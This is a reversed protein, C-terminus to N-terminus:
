NYLVDKIIKVKRINGQKDKITLLANEKGYLISQGNILDCLTLNSVDRDDIALIQDGQNLLSEACNFVVGVLLKDNVFVPRFPWQREGLQYNSQNADFYFKGHIFDLTVIGYDLLKSGIAPSAAKNSEIILDNFTANGIVFPSVKFLYKIGDEQLGITSLRDAGHGKALTDFVAYRNIMGVLRDEVRFFTNDGTDFELPLTVDRKGKILLTIFPSSQNGINLTLQGGDKSKLTLKDKQDTFVIIHKDPVISIISNRLLNSGIVGDIQYCKFFDPLGTTAPIHNFKLDGIELCNIEVVLTSDQHLFADGIQIKKLVKANLERALEKSITVPAGTDFLFHHRKGGIECYIFLKGNINEYPIEEYYNKSDPGGQNFNFTQAKCSLSVLFLMLLYIKIYNM